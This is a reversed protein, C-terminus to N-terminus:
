FILIIEIKLMRNRNEDTAYFSKKVSRSVKYNVNIAISIQLAYIRILVPVCM